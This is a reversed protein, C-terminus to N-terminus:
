DLSSMWTLKELCWAQAPLPLLGERTLAFALRVPLPNVIQRCSARQQATEDLNCSNTSTTILPRYRMCHLSQLFAMLLKARPDHRFLNDASYRTTHKETTLASSIHASSNTAYMELGDGVPCIKAPEVRTAILKRSLNNPLNDYSPRPGGRPSPSSRPM